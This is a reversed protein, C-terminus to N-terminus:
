PSEGKHSFKVVLLENVTFIDKYNKETVESFIDVIGKKLKYIMKRFFFNINFNEKLSLWILDEDYPSTVVPVRGTLPNQILTELYETNM